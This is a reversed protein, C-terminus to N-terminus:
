FSSVDVVSARLPEEGSGGAHLAHADKQWLLLLLVIRLRPVAAIAATELARGSV